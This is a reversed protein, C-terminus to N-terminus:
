VRREQAAPDDPQNSDDFCYPSPPMDHYKAFVVRDWGKVVDQQVRTDWVRHVFDPQGFVRVASNYEDGKFGVFHLAPQVGAALLDIPAVDVHVCLRRAACTRRQDCPAADASNPCISKQM